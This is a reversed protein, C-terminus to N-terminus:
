RGPLATRADSDAWAGCADCRWARANEGFCWIKHCITEQPAPGARYLLTGDRLRDLIRFWLVQGDPSRRQHWGSHCDSM